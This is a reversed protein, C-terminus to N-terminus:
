AETGGDIAALKAYFAEQVKRGLIRTEDTTCVENVAADFADFVQKREEIILTTKQGFDKPYVREALFRLSAADMFGAQRIQSALKAKAKEEALEAAAVFTAYPEMGARGDRLWNALTRKPIDLEAAAWYLKNGAVMVECIERILEPTLVTDPGRKGDSDRARARRIHRTKKKPAAKAHSTKRKRPKKKPLAPAEVEATDQETQEAM